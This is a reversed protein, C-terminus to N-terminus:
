SLKHADNEAIVQYESDIVLPIFTSRKGNWNWEADNFRQCYNDICKVKEPM